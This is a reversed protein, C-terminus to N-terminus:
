RLMALNYKQLIRKATECVDGTARYAVGTGGPVFRMGAFDAFVESWLALDPKKQVFTLL